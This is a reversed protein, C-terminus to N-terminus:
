LALLGRGHRAVLHQFTGPQDREDRGLAHGCRATYASAYAFVAACTAREAGDFLRGRAAEYDAVFARAEDLTPAQVRDDRTWDATFAHACSGVLAPERDRALSDWDYAVAIAGDSIRVHEARWDAHGIIRDGALAVDRAAIAVNDIWAAGAATAEFDFLKSHPVPWLRGTPPVGLLMPALSSGEVVPRCAEVIAYLGHALVRRVAPEHPEAWVGREVLAEIVAHAVGSDEPGAAPEREIVLPGALVTPSGVGALGARVRILERLQATATTPQHAKIVVERGDTLVVGAVSGVSATYFRAGAIRAGLASTCLEDLRGAIASPDDTGFIALEVHAPHPAWTALHAAITRVLAPSPTHSM